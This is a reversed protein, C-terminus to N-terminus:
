KLLKLHGIALEKATPKKIRVLQMLTSEPFYYQIPTHYGGRKENILYVDFLLGLSIKKIYKFIAEDSVAGTEKQRKYFAGKVVKAVGNLVMPTPKGGLGSLVNIRVNHSMTDKHKSLPTKTIMSSRTRKAPVSKTAGVKKAPAKTVKKTAGVKGTKLEKAAQKICDTWKKTPYKARIKKARASIEKVTM